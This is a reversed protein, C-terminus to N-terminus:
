WRCTTFHELRRGLAYSLLHEIFGRVFEEPQQALIVKFEAPGTFKRGNWGGSADVPAEGDRERWQGIPNFAELAFGPPDLRLKNRERGYGRVVGEIEVLDGARCRAV